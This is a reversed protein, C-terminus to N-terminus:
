LKLFYSGVGVSSYKHDGPQRALGIGDVACAACVPESRWKTHHRITDAVNVNRVVLRNTDPQRRVVIREYIARREAARWHDHSRIIGGCRLLRALGAMGPIRPAM